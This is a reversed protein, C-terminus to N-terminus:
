ETRTKLAEYNEVARLRELLEDAKAELRDARQRLERVAAVALPALRWDENGDPDEGSLRYCESLWKDAQEVLVKYAGSQEASALCARLSKVDEPTIPEDPYITLREVRAKDIDTM